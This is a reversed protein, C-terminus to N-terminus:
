WVSDLDEMAALADTLRGQRFRTFALMWLLANYHKPRDKFKLLHEEVVKAYKEYEGKELLRTNRYITYYTKALVIAVGVGAALWLMEYATKHRYICFDYFLWFLGVIVVFRFFAVM